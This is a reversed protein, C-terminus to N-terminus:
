GIVMLKLKVADEQRKTHARSISLSFKARSLSAQNVGYTEKEQGEIKGKLVNTSKKKSTRKIFRHFSFLPKPSTGIINPSLYQSFPNLAEILFM